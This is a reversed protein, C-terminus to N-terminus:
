RFVGGRDRWPGIGFGDAGQQLPKGFGLLWLEVRPLAVRVRDRANSVKASATNHASPHTATSGSIDPGAVGVSDTAPAADSTDRTAPVARPAALRNATRRM